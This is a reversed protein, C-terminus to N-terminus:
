DFFAGMWFQEGLAAQICMQILCLKIHAVSRYGQGTIYSSGAAFGQSKLRAALRTKGYAKAPSPTTNTTGSHDLHLM